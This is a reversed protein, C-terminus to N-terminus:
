YLKTTDMLWHLVATDLTGHQVATDVTRHLLATDVTGHLVAIAVTLYLVICPHINLGIISYEVCVRITMDLKKQMGTNYYVLIRRM